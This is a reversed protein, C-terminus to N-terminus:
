AVFNGWSINFFAHTDPLDERQKSTQLKSANKMTSEKSFRAGVDRKSINQDNTGQAGVGQGSLQNAPKIEDYIHFSPSYISAYLNLHKRILKRHYLSKVHYRPKLAIRIFLITTSHLIYARPTLAQPPANELRTCLLFKSSPRSRFLM